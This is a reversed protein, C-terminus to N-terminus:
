RVHGRNIAEWLYLSAASRYPRWKEGYQELDKAGPMEDLHYLWQVARRLGLDAISLVDPRGLSFILFMQATWVGIGKIITLTRIVEDDTMEPLRALNVEGSSVKGALDKVYIIKPRSVGAARLKDEDFALIMEPKMEGCAQVIRNWITTAVKVSLQQGIISRVLSAFYDDRLPLTLEGILDILEGLLPDTATLSVIADCKTTLTFQETVTIM